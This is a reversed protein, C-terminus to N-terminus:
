PSVRYPNSVILPPEIWSTQVILVLAIGGVIISPSLPRYGPRRLTLSAGRRSRLHDSKARGRWFVSQRVPIDPWRNALRTRHGSHRCNCAGNYEWASHNDWSGGDDGRHRRTRCQLDLLVSQIVQQEQLAWLGEGARPHNPFLGNWACAPSHAPRGVAHVM